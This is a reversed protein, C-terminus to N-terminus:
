DFVRRIAPISDFDSDNSYIEDVGVRLMQAAIILDDWMRWPLKFRTRLERAKKFDRYSTELVQIPVNELYDLFRDIVAGKSRRLLHALVQSLVLTSTYGIEAGKEFRLLIDLATLGYNPDKLMVYIFVNSDVFRKRM